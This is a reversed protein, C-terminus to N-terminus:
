EDLVVPGAEVHAVGVLQEAHKLPQMAGLVVVAGAHPQGNDVPDHMPVAPTHPCFCRRIPARREEEGQSVSLDMISHGIIAGSSGSVSAIFSRSTSIRSTSSLGLSM